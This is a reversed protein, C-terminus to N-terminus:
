MGGTDPVSVQRLTGEPSLPEKFALEGPSPLCASVSWDAWWGSFNKKLPYLEAVLDQTNLAKILVSSGMM